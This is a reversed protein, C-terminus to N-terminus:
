GREHVTGRGPKIAMVQALPQSTCYRGWAEFMSARSELLGDRAYAARTGDSNVHALALESVEDSFDTCNRAWDKFSSRFGHPVADVKMRKTVASLAMDSLPNNRSSPFILDASRSQRLMRLLNVAAIPLPVTHRRGAKMRASPIVWFNNVLDIEDWSAFRVEGSRASTYIAFELARAGMGERMRLSCMFNPIETWRLARHHQVKSIKRPSPLLIELNGKWRAPNLGDRFGGVAAWSLVTEIRQRVRNATDTKEYWIPELLEVVDRSQISSCWLSGIAPFAYLELSRIWNAQHRASSFEKSRALHCRRAAEAFPLRKSNADALLRKVEQKRAIPDVGNRIAEKSDRAGERAKQLTVEPYGGLGFDRRKNGIMARLVWSSSLSSSGRDRVLLYLGSVGGVAHFGPKVSLRKIEIAKLEKVKKPM